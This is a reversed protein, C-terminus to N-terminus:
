NSERERSALRLGLWRPVLVITIAFFLDPISSWLGKAMEGVVATPFVGVGAFMVGVFLWFGGLTNYTVIVCFVWCTLGTLYSGYVFAVGIWPRAKKAFLLPLM